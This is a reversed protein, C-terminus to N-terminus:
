PRHDVQDYNEHLFFLGFLYRDSTMQNNVGNLGHANHDMAYRANFRGRQLLLLMVLKYCRDLVAFM